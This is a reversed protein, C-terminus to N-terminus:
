GRPARWSSSAIPSRVTENRASAWSDSSARNQLPGLRVEYLGPIPTKSIEDIKMEALREGLNKRIAAEDAFAGAACLLLAAGLLAPLRPKRNM